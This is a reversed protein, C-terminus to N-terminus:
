LLRPPEGRLLLLARGALADDRLLMLVGDAVADLPILPPDTEREAESVRETAVWDPIVCNVRVGDVRALASTFRVLGAKAAGYEPSTYPTSEIGATSAVNVVAGAGAARMHPLAAQTALMPARLNLDLTAGWQAPTADPFHPPVHGGGGANNVLIAPAAAAVLRLADGDRTLDAAVFRGGCETATREGGAADVDSVVVQAGARALALAIARGTGVGAGTVLAVQGAIEM